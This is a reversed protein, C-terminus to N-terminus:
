TKGLKQLLDKFRRDWEELNEQVAVGGAYAAEDALDFFPKIQAALQPECQEVSRWDMGDPNQRWKLAAECYFAHRAEVFYRSADGRERAQNLANIADALKQETERRQRYDPNLRDMQNKHLWLGVCVLLAGLMQLVLFFPQGFLNQNFDKRLRGLETKNGMMVARAGPDGEREDGSPQPQPAATSAGSGVGTVTLAPLSFERTIYRKTDPDFYSFRMSPFRLSGSRQPVMIQEFVKKGMFQTDDILEVRNKSPYVKWNDGGDPQRLNVRDFNGRGEVELKLMVPEGVSAQKASVTASVTFDGIAGSFDDPRGEEPLPDVTCSIPASALTRNVQQTMPIHINFFPDDFIGGRMSRKVRELVTVGLQTALDFEGTKVPTISTSWNVTQYPVGEIIETKQAPASSIKGMTFGNGQLIPLSRLQIPYGEPVLLKIQVPVLQGLYYPGEPAIMKLEVGSGRSVRETNETGGTAPQQAASGASTQGGGAPKVKLKLAPVLYKKGDVLAYLPAINIEGTRTPVINYHLVSQTSIYGNISTYNSEQGTLQIDCGELQPPELAAETSGKVVVTLRASQDLSVEEPDLQAEVSVARAVVALLMWAVLVVMARMNM